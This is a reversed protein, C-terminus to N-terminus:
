VLEEMTGDPGPFFIQLGVNKVCLDTAGWVLADARDPSKRMDPVFSCLQEELEPFKGCHHARGREYLASVPEARTYKGRTARVATFAVNRDIARLVSEIL